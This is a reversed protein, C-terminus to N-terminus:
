LLYWLAWFWTATKLSCDTKSM